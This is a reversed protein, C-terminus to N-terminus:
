APMPQCAHSYLLVVQEFRALHLREGERNVDREYAEADREGHQDQEGLVTVQAGAIVEVADQGPAPRADHERQERHAHDGSRDQGELEARQPRLPHGVEPVDEAEAERQLAEREEDLGDEHADVGVAPLPQRRAQV